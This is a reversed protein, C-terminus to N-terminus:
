SPIVAEKKKNESKKTKIIFKKGNVEVIEKGNVDFMTLTLFFFLLFAHRFMRSLIVAVSWIQRLSSLRKLSYTDFIM